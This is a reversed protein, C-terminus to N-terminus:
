LQRIQTAVTQNYENRLTAMLSLPTTDGLYYPLYLTMTKHTGHPLAVANEISWSSSQTSLGDTYTHLALTGKFAHGSNSLTVHIPTWYDTRYADGFVTALSISPNHQHPTGAPATQVFLYRLLLAVILCCICAISYGLFLKRKSKLQLWALYSSSM